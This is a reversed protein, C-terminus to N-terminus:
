LPACPLPPFMLPTAPEPAASGPQTAAAAAQVVGQPASSLLRALDGSRFSAMADELQSEVLGGMLMAKAHMADLDADYRRFSHFEPM